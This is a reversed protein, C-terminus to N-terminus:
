ESSVVFEEDGGFRTEAVMFLDDGHSAGNLDLRTMQERTEASKCAV